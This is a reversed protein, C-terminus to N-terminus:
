ELELLERTSQRRPPPTASRQRRAFDDDRIRKADGESPSRERLERLARPARSSKGTEQSM